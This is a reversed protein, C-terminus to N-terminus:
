KTGTLHSPGSGRNWGELWRDVRRLLRRVPHDEPKGISWDRLFAIVLSAWIVLAFLLVALQLVLTVLEALNM